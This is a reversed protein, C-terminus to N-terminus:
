LHLNRSDFLNFDTNFINENEFITNFNYKLMDFCLIVIMAM